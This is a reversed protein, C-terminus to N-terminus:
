GTSWWIENNFVSAQRLGRHSCQYLNGANSILPFYFDGELIFRAVSACFNWFPLISLKRNGCQANAGVLTNVRPLRPLCIDNSEVIERQTYSRSLFNSLPFNRPNKQLQLELM